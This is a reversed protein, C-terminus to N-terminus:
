QNISIKLPNKLKMTFEQLYNNWEDENKIEGAKDWCAGQYYTLSKENQAKAFAVVHNEIISMGTNEPLIIGIGTTGDKKSAPEWYAMYGAKENLVMIGKENRKVIGIAVPITDLSQANYIVDILNLQSGADLTIRKVETIEQGNFQWPSYTLEFVTRLNGTTIVKYTLWNKSYFLKGGASPAIGGAGLTPGVKYSDLGEGHDKHYDNLKYWKNIIMEPTSKMWLDIGSSIEGTAQLAPGYMRFAIKDNEWAFDDKREPVYRGYTQTKFTEPNGGKITIDLSAKPALSAQILLKVPKQTEDNIIQYPLQKGTSTNVAIFPASLVSANKQVLSSWDLEIVENNRAIELTNEITIHTGDAFPIVTDALLANQILVNLILNTAIFIGLFKKM